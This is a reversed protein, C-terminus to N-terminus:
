FASNAKQKHTFVSAKESSHPQITIAWACNDSLALAMHLSIKKDQPSGQVGDM